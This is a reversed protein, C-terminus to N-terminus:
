RPNSSKPSCPSIVPTSPIPRPVIDSGRRSTGPRDRISSPSQYTPRLSIFSLCDKITAPPRSPSYSSRRSGDDNNSSTTSDRPTMPSPGSSTSLDFMSTSSTRPLISALLCLHSFQLVPFPTSGTKCIRVRHPSRWLVTRAATRTKVPPSAAIMSQSPTRLLVQERDIQRVGPLWRRKAPEGSNVVSRKSRKPLM